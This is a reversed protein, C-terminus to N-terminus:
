NYYLFGVVENALSVVTDLDAPNQTIAYTIGVSFAIGTSIDTQIRGGPPIGVCMVPTDTGLVAASAKQFLKLYRWAASTNDFEYGYLQGATSKVLVPSGDVGGRKSIQNVGGSAVPRLQVQGIVNAGTPLAPLSVVNASVSPEYEIPSIGLRTVLTGATFAGVRARVHSASAPLAAEVATNVATLSTVAAGDNLRSGQLARWTTGGDFSVELILTGTFATAGVDMAVTGYGPPIALRVEQNLATLNTPGAQIDSESQANDLAQRPPKGGYVTAYTGTPVAVLNGATIQAAAIPLADNIAPTFQGPDVYSGDDLQLRNAGVYRFERVAM